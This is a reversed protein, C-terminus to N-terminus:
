VHMLTIFSNNLPFGRGDWQIGTIVMFEMEGPSFFVRSSLYLGKDIIEWLMESFEWAAVIDAYIHYIHYVAMYPLGVALM